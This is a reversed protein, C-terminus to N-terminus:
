EEKLGLIKPGLTKFWLHGGYGGSGVRGGDGGDEGGWNEVGFGGFDKLGDGGLAAIGVYAHEGKGGCVEARGLRRTLHRPLLEM